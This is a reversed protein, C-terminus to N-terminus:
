HICAIVANPATAGKSNRRCGSMMRARPQPTEPPSRRSVGLPFNWVHRCCVLSQECSKMWAYREGLINPDGALSNQWFEYSVMAVLPAQPAEDAANFTRGLIPPVRLVNFLDSTATLSAVPEARDGDEWTAGPWAVLAMHAINKTNERLEVFDVWSFSDSLQGDQARKFNLWVVRDSEEIGLPRFLIAKAVSFVVTNAGIGLALMFVAIFTFGPNKRLMRAAYRFDQRLNELM